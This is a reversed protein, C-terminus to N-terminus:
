STVRFATHMGASYHGYLNCVLQYNGSSLTVTLEQTEGSSFQEIEDIVEVGVSPEAFRGGIVPIKGDEIDTKVVLFEHDMSGENTITFTVTGAKATDADVEVAWESLSGSINNSTIDTSDTSDGGCAGVIATVFVASVFLGFVKKM